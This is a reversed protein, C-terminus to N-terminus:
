SADPAGSALLWIVTVDDAGAGTYIMVSADPDATTADQVVIPSAHVAPPRAPGFPQLTLGLVLLGTAAGAFAVRPHGWVPKWVPLWWPDSVPSPGPAEERLRREVEPWFGDWDPPAGGVLAGQRLLARLRQQDSVLTRCAPCVAVHRGTRAAARVGLAGDAYASLRSRSWLCGLMLM